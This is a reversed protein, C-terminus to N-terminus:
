MMYWLNEGEVLGLTNVNRELDGVEGSGKRRKAVCVVVPLVARFSEDSATPEEESMGVAGAAAVPTRRGCETFHVVPIECPPVFRHNVYNKGCKKPDVDIMMAVRQRADSSLESVFNRGDRGAGWVAFREWGPQSLVRREFAGTRIRLLQQRSVRATGSGPSWRYLLVPDDPTGARVLSPRGATANVGGHIDLHRQFFILDEGEGDEPPSEIFGGVADFIGRKMCWTPMQVTVERFQELWLGKPDELTNAWWEYHETSGAPHRKWCGGVIATPNSMALAAQLELRRPRMIDDADLFVLLDGSSQAVASNKSHGIGGARVLAGDGGDVHNNSRQWRSGSAVVSVGRERLLPSWAHIVADSGDSSADDYISVEISGRYTQALISAFCEDLWKVANHVPVIISVTPLHSDVNSTADAIPEDQDPMRLIGDQDNNMDRVNRLCRGIPEFGEEVADSIARDAAALAASALQECDPRGLLDTEPAARAEEVTETAECGDFSPSSMEFADPRRRKCSTPEDSSKAKKDGDGIGCSASDKTTPEIEPDLLGCLVRVCGDRDFAESTVRVMGNAMLRPESSLNTTGSHILWPHMVVVSGARGVVQEIVGLRNRDEGRAEESYSLPLQGRASAESVVRIAWSNLDQHRIGRPERAAIEAAVWRHSGRVFATGGGGPAWDSLLVLVVAGQYPHGALRRRWDTDFGPGIDVHWGKGRVRRRNVPEWPPEGSRENARRELTSVNSTRKAADGTIEGGAHNGDCAEGESAHRKALLEAARERLQRKTCVRTSQFRHTIKSWTPGCEDYLAMLAADEESTWPPRHAERCQKPTRGTGLGAAVAEWSMQEVVRLRHLEALEAPTWAEAGRGVDGRRWTDKARAAAAAAAAAAASSSGVREPFVVPCYWHRVACEGGHPQNRPLEWSGNGLLANLVDTLRRSAALADWHHGVGPPVVEIVRRASGDPWTHPASLSVGRPTGSEPPICPQTLERSLQARFSELAAGDLVGDIVLVGDRAFTSAVDSSPQPAM